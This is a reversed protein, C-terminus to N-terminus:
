DRTTKKLKGSLLDWLWIVILALLAGGKILSSQTAFKDTPYTGISFAIYTENLCM